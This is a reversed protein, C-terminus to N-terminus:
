PMRAAEFATIVHGPLSLDDDVRLGALDGFRIPTPGSLPTIRAVPKGRRTVIVEEGREARSILKSLDAKAETMSVTVRM